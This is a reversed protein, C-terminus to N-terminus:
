KLPLWKENINFRKNIHKRREKAVLSDDALDPRKELYDAKFAAIKLRLEQLLNGDDPTFDGPNKSILAQLDDEKIGIVEFFNHKPDRFEKLSRRISHLVATRDLITKTAATSASEIYKRMEPRPVRQAIDAVKGWQDAKMKELGSELLNEVKSFNKKAM